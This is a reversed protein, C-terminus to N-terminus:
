LTYYPYGTVTLDASKSVESSGLEDGREPPAIDPRELRELTRLLPTRIGQWYGSSRPGM